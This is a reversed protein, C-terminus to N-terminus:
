VDFNKVFEYVTVMIASAPIVTLLRMNLGKFMGRLGRERYIRLIGDNELPFYKVYINTMSRNMNQVINLCNLFIKHKTCNTFVNKNQIKENGIETMTVAYANNSSFIERNKLVNLYEVHKNNNNNNSYNIENINIICTNCNRLSKEQNSINNIINQFNTIYNNNCYNNSIHNNNKVLQQSTQLQQQTKLVDFPHTLIAAFVGSTSGSLFTLFISYENDNKTKENNENKNNHGRKDRLEKSLFIRDRKNNDSNHNNNNNNNINEELSNGTLGSNSLINECFSSSLFYFYNNDSQDNNFFEKYFIKLREYSFWYICSFPVDRLITSSWGKYFGKMGKNKYISKGIVYASEKRGGLHLSLFINSFFTFFSQFM